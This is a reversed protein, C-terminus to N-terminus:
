ILFLGISLIRSEKKQSMDKLKRFVNKLEEQQRAQAQFLCLLCPSKTIKKHALNLQNKIMFKEDGVNLSYTLNQEYIINIKKRISKKLLIGAIRASESQVFSAAIKPKIEKLTNYEPIKKKVEDYNIYLFNKENYETNKFVWDKFSTKGSGFSGLIRCFIPNKQTKFKELSEKIIKNELEKRSVSGKLFTRSDTKKSIEILTKCYNEWVKSKKCKSKSLSLAEDRLKEYYEVKM